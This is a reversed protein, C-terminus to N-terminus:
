LLLFGFLIRLLRMDTISRKPQMWMPKIRKWNGQAMSFQEPQNKPDPILLDPKGYSVRGQLIQRSLRRLIYPMKWADECYGCFICRLM